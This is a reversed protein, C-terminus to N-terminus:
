ALPGYESLKRYLTRPSIKLIRAAQERNGGAIRITEHIAIKEIEAMSMGVRMQASTDQLVEPVPRQLQPLCSDLQQEIGALMQLLLPSWAAVISDPPVPPWTRVREAVFRIEALATELLM